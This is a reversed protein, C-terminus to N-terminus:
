NFSSLKINMGHFTFTQGQTVDLTSFKVAASSAATGVSDTCFSFGRFFTSAYSSYSGSTLTTQLVTANLTGGTELNSLTFTSAVVPGITTIVNPTFVIISGITGTQKATITTPGTYNIISPNSDLQGFQLETNLDPFVYSALVYAENWTNAGGFNTHNLSTNLYNYIESSNTPIAVDNRVFIIALRSYDTTSVDNEMGSCMQAALTKYVRPSVQLAM